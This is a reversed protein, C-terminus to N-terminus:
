SSYFGVREAMGLEHKGSKLNEDRRQLGRGHLVGHLAKLKDEANAYGFDVLFRQGAEELLLCARDQAPTTDLDQRDCVELYFSDGSPGRRM